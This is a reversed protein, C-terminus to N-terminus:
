NLSTEWLAADRNVHLLTRVIVARMTDDMRVLVRLQGVTRVGILELRARLSPPLDLEDLRTENTIVTQVWMLHGLIQGSGSSIAIRYTM